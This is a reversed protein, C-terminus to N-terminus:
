HENSPVISFPMSVCILLKLHILGVIKIKRYIYNIDFSALVVIIALM